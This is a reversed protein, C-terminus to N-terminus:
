GYCLAIACVAASFPLAGHLSPLAFFLCVQIAFLLFFVQARGLVGSGWAWVVRGAANFIAIIGVITGATVVDLGAQQQALPSAQSIIMIGASSNLSLLLWLLYFRWTKFAEAPPYDIHTASKAVASVPKWGEPRWGEPPDKFLL